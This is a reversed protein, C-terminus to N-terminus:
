DCVRRNAIFLGASMRLPACEIVEDAREWILPPITIGLAKATKINIVLEFKTPLELPLDGPQAGKLIKDVYIAGRRWSERLDIGYSMLGGDEVHEHFDYMTPLRGATALAAIRRRWSLFMADPLVLGLDVRERVMTGIAADLDDPVRVEVPVLKRAFSASAAEANRRFVAHAPNSVNVLLGIRSAGPLLELALQLQEGPLSDLTGLIGTVQGGPRAMSTVFGFGEPDTLTVNVIPITATARKIALTGAVTGTVFVDPRLRLLEDALGPMRTLDGDAYRYAFEINRGEIYSFEKLGQPFGSLWRAATISSSGLLVAILPRKSAVDAWVALPRAAMASSLLVIFERRRMRAPQPRGSIAVAGLLFEDLEVRVNFLRASRECLIKTKACFVTVGILRRASNWM